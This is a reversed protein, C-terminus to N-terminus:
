YITVSLKNHVPVTQPVQPYTFLHIDGRVSSILCYLSFSLIHIRTYVSWYVHIYIATCLVQKLFDGEARVRFELFNERFSLGLRSGPETKVRGGGRSDPTSCHSLKVDTAVM